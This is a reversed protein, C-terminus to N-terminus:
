NKNKEKLLIDKYKPHINKYFFSLEMEKHNPVDINGHGGKESELYYVESYGLDNMRHVFKRSHCPHSIDDGRSAFVLIPPYDKGAELNHFPSYNQMYTWDEPINADGREGTPKVGRLASCRQLELSGVRTLVAGYLEPKQIFAITVLLGGNSGGYIGIKKPSTVQRNILDQAVAHFDDFAKQRKERIAALHWDPGYEGGGRINSLVFVGGDELWRLYHDLSIPLQSNGWGGYGTMIVPNDGNLEINKKSVIYYPVQTGDKSSAFRQSVKYDTTDIPNEYYAIKKVSGDSDRLYNELPKVFHRQRFYYRNLSDQTQIVSINDGKPHEISRSVWKNEIFRWEVLSSSVHELLGVILLDNTTWVEDVVMQKTSPTVLQFNLSGNFFDQIDISILSGAKFTNDQATWESKLHVILQDSVVHLDKLDKPLNLLQLKDDKVLYYESNLYRYDKSLFLHSGREFLSLRVDYEDTEYLVKADEISQGRKLVRVKNALAYPNKLNTTVYLSNKDRWFAQSNAPPIHFGDTIFEGEETDFERIEILRRRDKEKFYVLCKTFEPGQCLVKEYKYETDKRDLLEDINYVFLPKPNNNLYMKLDARIWNTGYAAQAYPGVQEAVPPAKEVVVEKSKEKFQNYWEELYPLLEVNNFYDETKDYQNNIWNLASESELDELWYYDSPNLNKPGLDDQSFGTIQFLLFVILILPKKM